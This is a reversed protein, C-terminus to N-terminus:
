NGAVLATFFRLTSLAIVVYTAYGWFTSKKIKNKMKIYNAASRWCGVYAVIAIVFFLIIYLVYIITAIDSM